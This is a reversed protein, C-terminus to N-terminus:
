VSQASTCPRETAELGEFLCRVVQGHRWKALYEDMAAQSPAHRAPEGALLAQTAWVTNDWNTVYYQWRCGVPRQTVAGQAGASLRARPQKCSLEQIMRAHALFATM